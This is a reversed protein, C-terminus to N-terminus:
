LVEREEIHYILAPADEAMCCAMAKEKSDFIGIIQTDEDFCVDTCEPNYEGIVIWVKM